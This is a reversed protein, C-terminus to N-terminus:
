EINIPDLLPFYSHWNSHDNKTDRALSYFTVCLVVTLWGAMLRICTPHLIYVAHSCAHPTSPVFVEESRFCVVLLGRVGTADQEM